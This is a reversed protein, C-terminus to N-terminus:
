NNSDQEYSIIAEDIMHDFGCIKGKKILFSKSKEVDFVKDKINVIINKDTDNYIYNEFDFELKDGNEYKSLYIIENKEVLKLLESKKLTKYMICFSEGSNYKNISISKEEGSINKSMKIESKYTDDDQQKIYIICNKGLDNEIEPFQTSSSATYKYIVNENIESLKIKDSWSKKTIKKGYEINFLKNINEESLDEIVEGTSYNIVKCDYVKLDEESYTVRMRIYDTYNYLNSPLNFKTANISLVFIEGDKSINCGYEIVNEFSTYTNLSLDKTIKDNDEYSTKDKTFIFFLAIAIAITIIIVLLIFIKKRKM